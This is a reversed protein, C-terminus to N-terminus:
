RKFLEGTRQFPRAPNGGVTAGDPVDKTVVAGMAISAYNGIKVHDRITANMGIFTGEGIEACGGVKAGVGVFVHDGLHVGEGLTVYSMISCHAGIKVDPCAVSTSAFHLGPGTEAYSSIRGTASCVSASRFGYPEVQEIFRKKARVEHDIALPKLEEVWYVPYGRYTEGRRNIDLNQSFGALEHDLPGSMLATDYMTFSYEGSGLYILPTKKPPQGDM